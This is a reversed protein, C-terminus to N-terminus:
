WKRRHCSNYYWINESPRCYVTHYVNGLPFGEPLVSVSVWTGENSYFYMRTLPNFYINAGPYYYYSVQEVSANYSPGIVIPEIYVRPVYNRPSRILFISRNDYVRPLYHNHYVNGLRQSFGVTSALLAASLLIKKM